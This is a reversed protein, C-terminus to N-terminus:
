EEIEMEDNNNITTKIHDINALMSQTTIRKADIWLGELDYFRRVPDYFVHIIIHGYDLVIWRGERAGEVYVPRIGFKKLEIVIHEAVAIVQRNSSGSCIIFVDALSTLDHVDLVVIDQAKKGLVAKVYIDLMPDIQYTM